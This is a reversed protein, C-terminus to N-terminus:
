CFYTFFMNLKNKFYKVRTNDRIFFVSFVTCYGNLDYQLIFRM